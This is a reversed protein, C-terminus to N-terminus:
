KNNLNFIENAKEIAQECVEKFSQLEIRHENLFNFCFSFLRNGKYQISEFFEIILANKLTPYLSNFFEETEFKAGVIGISKIYNEWYYELFEEKCKGTLKM